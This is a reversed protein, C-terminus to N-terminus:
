GGGSRRRALETEARADLHYADDVYHETGDPDVSATAYVFVVPVPERLRVTTSRDRAAVEAIREADWGPERSLVWRALADPDELRICGHSRERHPLAFVKGHPTGHLEICQADPVVFKVSGLDNRPGPRQRLTLEGKEVRALVDESPAFTDADPEPRDVIEMGHADLWDPDVRAKPLIEQRLIKPPPVWYPRFVVTSITSALMPTAHSRSEGVVTRMALDTTGREVDVAWLQARPIVVVVARSGPDPLWRWRELSLELQRIRRSPPVNLEAVTEKGLVGDAVLAHREQFRRIAQVLAPDYIEPEPPPAAGPPLDGAAALRARVAPIGPWSAGPEV